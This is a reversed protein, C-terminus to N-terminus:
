NQEHIIGVKTTHNDKDTLNENQMKRRELQPRQKIKWLLEKLM